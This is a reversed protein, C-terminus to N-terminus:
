ARRAPKWLYQYAALLGFVIAVPIVVGDLDRFIFRDVLWAGLGALVAVILVLGIRQWLPMAALAEPTPEGDRWGQAM